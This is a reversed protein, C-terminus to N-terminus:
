GYVVGIDFYIKPTGSGGTYVFPIISAGDFIRIAGKHQPSAFSRRNSQNANPCPIVALIRGLTLMVEGASGATTVDLAEVKAVGRSTRAINLMFANRVTTAAQSFQLNDGVVGTAGTDDEYNLRVIPATTATATTVTAFCVVNKAAAGSYRGLTPPSTITRLGVSAVSVASVSWLMDVLILEFALEGKCEVYSLFKKDTSKNEWYITGPENTHLTGGSAANAPTAMATPDGDGCDWLNTINGATTASLFRKHGPWRLLKGGTTGESIKDDYTNFGPVIGGGSM